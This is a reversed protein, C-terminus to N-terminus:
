NQVGYGISEAHHGSFLTIWEKSGYFERGALVLNRKDQITAESSQAVNKYLTFAEGFNENKIFLEAQKRMELIPSPKFDETKFLQTPNSNKDEEEMDDREMSYAPYFFTSLVVILTSTIYFYPKYKLSFFAM